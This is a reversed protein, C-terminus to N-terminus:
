DVYLNITISTVIGNDATFKICNNVGCYNLTHEDPKVPLISLDRIPSNIAIGNPLKVNSSLIKVGFIHVKKIETQEVLASISIEEFLYTVSKLKHTSHGVSYDEETKQLLVGLDLIDSENALKKVSYAESIWLDFTEAEEITESYVSISSFILLIVFVLKM